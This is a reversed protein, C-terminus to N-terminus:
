IKHSLFNSTADQSLISILELSWSASNAVIPKFYYVLTKQLHNICATGHSTRLFFWRSSCELNKHRSQSRQQLLCHRKWGRNKIYKIHPIGLIEIRYARWQIHFFSTSSVGMNYLFAWPVRVKELYSLHYSPFMSSNRLPYVLPQFLM